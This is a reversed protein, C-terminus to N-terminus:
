KKKYGKPCVPKVATVKKTLKGKVCTITTKKIVLAAKDAAAKAEAEQKAKLDAAIKDAALKAEAEQKVKLDAAIKDAALKAEAEQKVRLEEAAKDAVAKAEAEQKAKLDAAVKAEADQKAKLEAAKDAAAKAEADQKAKLEAAVKAEAEQKAKLEAAAKADREAQALKAYVFSTNQAEDILQKASAGSSLSKPILKISLKQGDNDKLLMTYKPSEIYTGVGLRGTIETTLNSINSRFATIPPRADNDLQYFSIWSRSDRKVLDIVLATKTGTPIVLLQDKISYDFSFNNDVSDSKIDNTESVCQINEDGLWGLVWKEWALIDIVGDSMLSNKVSTPSGYLDTLGYLHMIEHTIVYESKQNYLVVVNNIPGEATSIPNFWPGYLDRTMPMAEANEASVKYTTSFLVVGDFGSYNINRDQETIFKSMFGWTSDDYREQWTKNNNQPQKILNRQEVTMDIDIIENYSFTVRSKGESFDYINNSAKTFAEKEKSGFEFTTEGKLRYPIVLIKPNNIKALREQNIPFGISIQQFSSAQIKCESVPQASATNPLASFLFALVLLLVPKIRM